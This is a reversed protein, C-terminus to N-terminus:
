EVQSGKPESDAPDIGVTVTGNLIAGEIPAVWSMLGGGTTDAEHVTLRVSSGGELRLTYEGPKEALVRMYAYPYAPLAKLPQLIHISDGPPAQVKWDTAEDVPQSLQAPIVASKGATLSISDSFFEVEPKAGLAGTLCACLIGAIIGLRM